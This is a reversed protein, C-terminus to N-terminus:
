QDGGARQHVQKHMVAVTVAAITMGTAGSFRVPFGKTL